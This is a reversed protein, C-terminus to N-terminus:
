SNSVVVADLARMGTAADMASRMESLPFQKINLADLALCGSVIMAALRGPAEKPYMFNGIVSWDNALMEAVSIALPETVSGM